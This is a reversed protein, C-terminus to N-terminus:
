CRFFSLIHSDLFAKLTHKVGLLNSGSVSYLQCPRFTLSRSTVEKLHSIEKMGNFDSMQDTLIVNLDGM